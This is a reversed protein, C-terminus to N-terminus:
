NLRKTKGGCGVEVSGYKLGFFTYLEIVARYSNKFVFDQGTKDYISCQKLSDIKEIKSIKLQRVLIKEIPNDLFENQAIFLASKGFTKEEPLSLDDLNDSILGPIAISL